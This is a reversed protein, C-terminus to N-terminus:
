QGLKEVFLVRCSTDLDLYGYHLIIVAPKTAGRGSGAVPIKPKIAANSPVRKQPKPPMRGLLTYNGLLLAVGVMSSVGLKM